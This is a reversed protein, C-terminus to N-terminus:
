AVATDERARRCELYAVIDGVTIMRRAEDEPIEVDFEEEVAAILEILDLPGAGLDEALRAAPTVRGLDDARFQEMVLACVADAYGEPTPM